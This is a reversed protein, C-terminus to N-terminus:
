LYEAPALPLDISIMTEQQYVSTISMAGGYLDVVKQAICLGLGTGQQEYHSREFQMFAGVSQIQEPTMGQGRDRIRLRFLEGEIAGTMQVPTQTLSFKFANDLLENLLWHCHKTNVTILADAVDISLDLLREHEKAKAKAITTLDSTSTWNLPSTPDPPQHSGLHHTASELYLYNLFKQHLLELRKASNSGLTVLELMDANAQATIPASPALPNPDIAALGSDTLDFANLTNEEIDTAPRDAFSDAFNDTLDPGTLDPGTLGSGALETGLSYSEPASLVSFGPMLPESRDQLGTTIPQDQLRLKRELLAFSTMIGHLPTNMEHSLTSSLSGHIQSLGRELF